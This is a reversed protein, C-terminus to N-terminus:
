MRICVCDNSKYKQQFGIPCTCPQFVIYIKRQSRRANKCPGEAYFTLGENAHPSYISFTLNTCANGTVQSSQGEGLSSETRSLSSHVIIAKLTHNVQDVAVLSVNFSEGRKVRVIPPEYTAEKGTLEHWRRMMALRRDLPKRHEEKIDDIDGNPVGIFTALSEWDGGIRRAIEYGHKESVVCKLTEGRVGLTQLLPDLEVM